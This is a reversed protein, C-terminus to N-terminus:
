CASEAESARATSRAASPNFEAIYDRLRSLDDIAYPSWVVKM